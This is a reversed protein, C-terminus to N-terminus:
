CCYLTLKKEMNLTIEEKFYCLPTIHVSNHDPPMKGQKIRSYPKHGKLGCVGLLVNCSLLSVSRHSRQQVIFLNSLFTCLSFSLQGTSCDTFDFNSDRQATFPSSLRPQSVHMVSTLQCTVHQPLTDTTDGPPATLNLINKFTKYVPNTTSSM